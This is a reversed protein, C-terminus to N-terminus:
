RQNGSPSAISSRHLLHTGSTQLNAPSFNISLNKGSLKRWKLILCSAKLSNACYDKFILHNMPPVERYINMTTSSISPMLVDINHANKWLNIASQNLVVRRLKYTCKEHFMRKFCVNSHIVLLCCTRFIGGIHEFSKKTQTWKITIKWLVSRYWTAACHVAM